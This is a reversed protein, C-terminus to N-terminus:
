ETEEDVPVAEDIEGDDLEEIEVDEDLSADLVIEAREEEDAAIVPAEEDLLQMLDRQDSGIGFALQIHAPATAVELFQDGARIAIPGGKGGRLISTWFRIHFLVQM